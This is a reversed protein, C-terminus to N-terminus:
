NKTFNNVHSLIRERVLSDAATSTRHGTHLHNVIEKKGKLANYAAYVSTPPCSVDIFGVTLLAEAKTRSAFNVGDLYRSVELAKADPKGEKDVPVMKPWGSIRNAMMGTHDLMAPIQAAFFTIRPDLGAAVIAQGGGQSRGNVVLIKKDWEPQKTIVELARMLRLYMGHFFVKEMNDPNKMFYQWYEPTRYLESYFSQPKGNPLGHVNFDIAVFGDKAWDSAIKLRASAVGAGHTLVIAPLSGPKANVPRAIYASLPLGLCDAQLDFVEIGAIPSKVPTLKLNLPITALKDKKAKWFADFDKPAPMSPPIKLPEVAVAARVTKIKVGPKYVDARCQLFGPKNLAASVMFNSEESVGEKIAPLLGDDTLKWKIRAGTVAEGNLSLKVTFKVEEGIKYFAEPKDPVITLLYDAEQAKRDGFSVILLSLNVLILAIFLRNIKKVTMKLIEKISNM